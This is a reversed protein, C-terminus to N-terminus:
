KKKMKGRGHLPLPSAKRDGQSNDCHTVTMCPFIALLCCRGSISVGRNCHRVASGCRNVNKILFHLLDPNGSCKAVIPFDYTAARALFSPTAKIVLGCARSSVESITRKAQPLRERPLPLPSQAQEEALSCAFSQFRNNGDAFHVFGAKIRIKLLLCTSHRARTRGGARLFCWEHHRIIGNWQFPLLQYM